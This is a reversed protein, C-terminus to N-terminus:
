LHVRSDAGPRWLHGRHRGALRQGGGPLQSGTLGRPVVHRQARANTQVKVVNFAHPYQLSHVSFVVTGGDNYTGASSNYYGSPCPNTFAGTDTYSITATGGPVASLTLPQCADSYYFNATVSQNGTLVVQWTEASGGGNWPIAANVAGSVSQLGYNRDPMAAVTVQSGTQYWGPGMSPCNGAPSLTLSGYTPHNVSTTLQVCSGFHATLTGAGPHGLTAVSRTATKTPVAFDLYKPLVAAA